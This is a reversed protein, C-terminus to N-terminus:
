KTMDVDGFSAWFFRKEGGDNSNYHKNVITEMNKQLEEAKQEANPDKKVDYFIDYSFFYIKDRHPISTVTLDNNVKCQGKEYYAGGGLAIQVIV